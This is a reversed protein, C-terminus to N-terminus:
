ESATIIIVNLDEVEGEDSSSELGDVEESAKNESLMEKM